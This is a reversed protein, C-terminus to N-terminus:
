AAVHACRARMNRLSCRSRRPVLAYERTPQPGGANPMRCTICDDRDPIHRHLQAEWMTSTTAHVLLPEGRSAIAHRVYQGNALPLVLDPRFGDQDFEDYWVRHPEGGFLEAALDAKFSATGGAWGTDRPLIGLCRNTNHLEARDADVVPWRGKAGFERLWYAFCSGVGGAGVVM